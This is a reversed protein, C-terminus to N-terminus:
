ARRYTGCLLKQLKVALMLEPEIYNEIHSPKYDAPFPKAVYAVPEPEPAEIIRPHRLHNRRSEISAYTREPFMQVLDKMSISMDMIIFDTSEDWYERTDRSIGLQLRKMAVCQASRGIVESMERDTMTMCNDRVYQVQEDTWRPRVKM